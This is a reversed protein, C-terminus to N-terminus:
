RLWSRRLRSLLSRAALSDAGAPGVSVLTIGIWFVLGLAIGLGQSQGGVAIAIRSDFGYLLSAAVLAIASVAVLGAIFLALSRTM